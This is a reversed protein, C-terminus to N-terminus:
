VPAIVKKDSSFAYNPRDQKECCGPVDRLSCGYCFPKYPDQTNYKMFSTRQVGIPLECFGQRCGGRRSSPTSSGDTDVETYFPCEDDRMCRKDWVTQTPKLEGFADYKSNCLARSEIQLNGYCAFRGDIAEPSIELRSIFGETPRNPLEFPVIYHDAEILTINASSSRLRHATESIDSFRVSQKRLNPYFLGLRDLDVNEWSLAVMELTGVAAHYASKPVVYTIFIDTDNAYTDLQPVGQYPIETLTLADPSIRYGYIISQILQYDCRDFYAVRKNALDFPCRIASVKSPPVLALFYGSVVPSPTSTATSPSAPDATAPKLKLFDVDNVLVRKAQLAQRMSASYLYENWMFVDMRKDVHMWRVQGGDADKSLASVNLKNTTLVDASESQFAERMQVGKWLIYSTLAVAAIVTFARARDRKM